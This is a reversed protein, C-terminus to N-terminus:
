QMPQAPPIGYQSARSPPLYVPFRSSATWLRFYDEAKASRRASIHELRGTKPRHGTRPFYHRNAWPAYWYSRVIVGPQTDYIVLPEIRAVYASYSGYNGGASRGSAVDAATASVVGAIGVAGALIARAFFSRM